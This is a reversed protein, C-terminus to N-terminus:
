NNLQKKRENYAIIKSIVTVILLVFIFIPFSISLAKIFLDAYAKKLINIGAADFFDTETLIFKEKEENYKFTFYMYKNKVGWESNYVRGEGDIMVALKYEEDSIDLVSIKEKYRINGKGMNNWFDRYLEKNSVDIYDFVSKDNSNYYDVISAFSKIADKSDYAYLLTSISLFAIFVLLIGVIRKM